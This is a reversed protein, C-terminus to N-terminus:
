KETKQWELLHRSYNKSEYLRVFMNILSNYNPKEDFDLTKVYNMYILFEKPMGTCLDDVSTKQKVDGIMKYRTYKDQHKISQWPLRGKFFYILMYGIAELDDRRSQEFGIHANISAYRATGCFKYGHKQKIHKGNEDMYKKAMGFDICYIKQPNKSDLVFNDPKIDRHIYNCNHIYKVSKLLQIAIVIVTKLGFKKYQSMLSELSKGLLNMIIIKYDHDKIIKVNSIGYDDYDPDETNLTKYVKAEEILSKEGNKEECKIPIKIAHQTKKKKHEGVYVVGFSGSAIYKKVLYNGFEQGTFNKYNNPKGM